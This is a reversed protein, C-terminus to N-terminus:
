ASVLLDLDDFPDIDDEFLALWRFVYREFREALDSASIAAKYAAKMLPYQLHSLM